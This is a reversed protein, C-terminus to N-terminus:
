PIKGGTGAYWTTYLMYNDASHNIHKLEAPKVKRKAIAPRGLILTEDEFRAEETVLSGAGVISRKGVHANDMLISGMGVLTGDGVHCGHLIVQHGVTVRDGLVVGCKKYTAHLVCNDQINTQKGIRIPFVDGRIVTGFWISCGEGIHVDGIITATPAIWATQHIKPYIGNVPIIM